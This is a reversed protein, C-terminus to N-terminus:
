ERARERGREDERAMERGREGERVKERRREGERLRERGVNEAKERGINLSLGNFGFEFRLKQVGQREMPRSPSPLPLVVKPLPLRRGAM